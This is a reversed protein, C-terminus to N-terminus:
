FNANVAAGRRWVRERWRLGIAMTLLLGTLGFVSAAVVYGILKILPGALLLGVALGWVALMRLGMVRGRMDDDAARLMVAALPTLCFSQAMGVLMLLPIGVSASSAQAFLLVLVFLLAAAILMTRGPPLAFRNAALVLSGILGGFAFSASLYGLGAQGLSFVDKAVYPLLGFFFPFAFLNVLLALSVAALLEPRDRAHILGARLDGFPSQPATAPTGPARRPAGAVGLSLTFSTLYLLTVLVYAPGMGFAAVGGAGALAGAIRATDATTRSISLAGLLQAPPLTQAILSHRMVLDSPRIMGTVAAIAFVHWPLLAGSFTLVMLSGALLAYTARTVCLLRRHGFRDGAVGFLPSALSGVWQLAGFLVLAQVSGTAVLVYWGLILSEMEFAWSTALDAPWQFRFSRLQFPALVPARLPDTM